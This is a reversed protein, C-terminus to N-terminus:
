VLKLLLALLAMRVPVGNGAQDFYIAQELGDVDPKIENVRPLPHMVLPTGGDTETLLDRTIEYSGAVKEYEVPDPFREKQIRTAYLVDARRVTEELDETVTPKMGQQKLEYLLDPKMQLQPPSVLMLDIEYRTLARALSRTTRSYRLDGALAVTTGDIKGLEKRITYLDLLTQTPHNASGDGGNVIPIDCYDSAMKASGESPHRMVLIDAYNSVVRVTDALTEGKEVSSGEQSSFGISDGGLRKMATDFSLRTRTSPEFFLTGMVKGRALDTGDKRYKEMEEAKDLLLEFEERTKDRLTIFDELRLNSSM